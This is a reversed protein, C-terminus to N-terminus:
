FVNDPKWKISGDPHTGYKEEWEKRKAVLYKGKDNNEFTELNVKPVIWVRLEKKKITLKISEAGFRERLMATLARQEFSIRNHRLYGTFAELKFVYRKNERDDWCMGFKGLLGEKLESSPTPKECFEIFYFAIVGFFSQEYPVDVKQVNKYLEARIQRWDKPTVPPATEFCNEEIIVQMKSYSMLIATDMIRLVHDKYKLEWYKPITMYCKLDTFLSGSDKVGIWSFLKGITGNTCGVIEAITPIGLKNGKSNKANTGKSMKNKANEDNSFVALNYVFEDIEGASWETHQSLVGAISTCYNDRNGKSPYLISLAGSLAIKGIDHALDGNYENISAYKSWEVTENEVISGPVISQHASDKFCRIECLTVGHPFDKCYKELEKPLFYKFSALSNNFLFHSLPNSKRGYVAGRSRLYKEVFRKIYHNDIDFDVLGKLKLGIQHEPKFDKATSIVNGWDKTIPKKDICPTIEYGASIWEAPTTPADTKFM